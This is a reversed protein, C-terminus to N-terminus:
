LLFAAPEGSGGLHRGFAQWSSSSVMGLEWGCSGAPRLRCSGNWDGLNSLRRPLARLGELHREIFLVGEGGELRYKIAEFHGKKLCCRSLSRALSFSLSETEM